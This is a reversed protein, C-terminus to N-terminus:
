KQLPGVIQPSWREEDDDVDFIGYLTTAFFHIGTGFLLGVLMAIAFAATLPYISVFRDITQITEMITSM